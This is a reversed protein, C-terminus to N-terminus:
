SLRASRVILLAVGLSIGYGWLLWAAGLRVVHDDIGYISPAWRLLAGDIMMAITGVVCVGPLLQARSLTAAKTIIVVSAWALPFTAVFGINGALPDLFATPFLRICLTVVAWLGLSALTLIALQRRTLM